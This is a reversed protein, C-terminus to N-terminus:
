HPKATTPLCDLAAREAEVRRIVVCGVFAFACWARIPQEGAEYAQVLRRSIGWEQALQAQTLGLSRRAARFEQPTLETMERM